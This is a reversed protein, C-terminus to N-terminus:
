KPERLDSHTLFYALLQQTYPEDERVMTGTYDLLVAKISNKMYGGKCIPVTGKESFPVTGKESFPVTGREYFPVTEM